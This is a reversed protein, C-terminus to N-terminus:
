AAKQLLASAETEIALREGQYPLTQAWDTVGTVVDWLTEIEGQEHAKFRDHVALARRKSGVLGLVLRDAKGDKLKHGRAAEIAALFATREDEYNLMKALAPMVEKIFREPAGSTHKIEINTIDSAGWIIRNACVYDYFFSKFVCKGLGVESNRFIIGRSMQGAKWGDGARRRAPLEVKQKENAVMVHMDRDSAFYTTNAKTVQDLAIGFEGPVRWDGTVGDGVTKLLLDTIQVNHIRGYRPGLVARLMYEQDSKGDNEDAQILISLDSTRALDLSKGLKLGKLKTPTIDPTPLVKDSATRQLRYNLVSAALNAPLDRYQDPGSNAANRCLQEFAFNSPILRTEGKGANKVLVELGKNDTTSEVRIDGSSISFSESRGHVYSFHNHMDELSTFREEDRRNAWQHHIDLMDTM